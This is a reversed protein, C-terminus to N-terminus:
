KVYVKKIIKDDESIIIEIQFKKLLNYFNNNLIDNLDIIGSDLIKKTSNKSFNYKLIEVKNINKLLDYVRETTLDSEEIFEFIDNQNIINLEKLEYLLESNTNGIIFKKTYNEKILESIQCLFIIRDNLLKFAKNIPLRLINEKFIEDIYKFFMYEGGVKLIKNEYLVRIEK